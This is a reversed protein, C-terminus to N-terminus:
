HIEQSLVPSRADTSRLEEEVLAAATWAGNGIDKFTRLRIPVLGKDKLQARARDIAEHKSSATITIRVRRKM